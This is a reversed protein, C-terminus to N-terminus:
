GRHVYLNPLYLESFLQHPNNLGDNAHRQVPYSQQLLQNRYRSLYKCLLKSLCRPYQQAKTRDYKLDCWKAYHKHDTLLRITPLLQRLYQLLLQMYFQFSEEQPFQSENPILRRFCAHLKYDINHDYGPMRYVPAFPLPQQHSQQEILQRAQYVTLKAYKGRPHYLM